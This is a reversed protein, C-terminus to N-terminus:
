CITRTSISKPERHSAFTPCAKDLADISTQAEDEPVCRIIDDEGMGLRIIQIVFPIPEPNSWLSFNKSAILLCSWHSYAWRGIDKSAPLELDTVHPTNPTPPQMTSTIAFSSTTAVSAQHSISPNRGLNNLRMRVAAETDGPVHSPETSGISISVDSSLHVIVKGCSQHDTKSEELNLTLVEANHDGPSSYM